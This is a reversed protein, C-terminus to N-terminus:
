CFYLHSIKGGPVFAVPCADGPFQIEFATNAMALIDFAM